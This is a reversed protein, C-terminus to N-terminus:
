QAWPLRFLSTFRPDQPPIFRKGLGSINELSFTLAGEHDIVRVINHIGVDFQIRYKGQALSNPPIRFRRLITGKSIFPAPSDLTDDYLCLALPHGYESFLNFGMVLGELQNIIELEIGVELEADTKFVGDEDLSKIWTRKLRILDNGEDGVWEVQDAGDQAYLAVIERSTGARKLQGDELLIASECLTTIASVNHSVFLVTSGSKSVTEMKQICKKQFALDGVALVEDVILIEPDLHAAVAFAL